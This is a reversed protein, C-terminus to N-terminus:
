LDVRVGASWGTLWGFEFVTPSFTLCADQGKELMGPSGSGHVLVCAAAPLRLFASGADAAAGSASGGPYVTSGRTWLYAWGWDFGLRALFHGRTVFVGMGSVVPASIELLNEAGRRVTLTTGDALESVPSDGPAWAYRIRFMDQYGGFGWAGEEPKDGAMYGFGVSVGYLTSASSVPLGVIRRPVGDGNLALAPASWHSLTAEVPFILAGDDGARAVDPVAVVAVTAALRLAWHGRRPLTRQM